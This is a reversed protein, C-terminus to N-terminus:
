AITGREGPTKSRAVPPGRVAIQRRWLWRGDSDTVGEVEVEGGCRDCKPPKRKITQPQLMGSTLWSTWGLHMWVLLQLGDLGIASNSSMWGYHRVKQFGSSLNHQTFGEVFKDGEVTRM